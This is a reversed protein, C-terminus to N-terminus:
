ETFHRWTGGSPEWQGKAAEPMPLAAIVPGLFRRLEALLEPFDPPTMTPPTRRLFSTWFGREDVIAAFADTLGVPLSTPLATDRRRLTGGVAEVLQSLEFPFTRAAVWIDHFDKVRGNGEGFRLMAEFKEAVVTEPPYMLVNPAQMDPLLSPFRQRTPAPHVYDGFGIDVMVPIVASALSARMSLRVGQYGDIERAPDVRLTAPEFIIGDEPVDTQCIRTFVDAIANPSPDGHGLLDLDSTPRFVHEPWTIFLMAGKLVYRESADTRSLRFLLREIAYRTLVRQFNNGHAQAHNLLRARISAGPDKLPKTTM